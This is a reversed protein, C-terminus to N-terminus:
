GHVCIFAPSWKMHGADRANLSSTSKNVVFLEPSKLVSPPLLKNSLWSLYLDGTCCFLLTDSLRRIRGLLPQQQQKKLDVVCITVNKGKGDQCSQTKRQLDDAAPGLLPKPTWLSDPKQHVKSVSLLRRRLGGEPRCPNSSPLAQVQLKNGMECRPKFSCLTKNQGSPDEYCAGHWCSVAPESSLCHM